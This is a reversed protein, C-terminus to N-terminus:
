LHRAVAECFETTSASGGQDPTLRRGEAYVREVATELRRAAEVFGLYELMLTASLITATPNIVNRGAIDPASGHASEFYAYTDGYCGSAALGLGGMVGAALDTLIDGYLNPLVVVDLAQPDAVLRRAFDDVIFTEFQVDLYSDAVRMAVQRFLGDSQPLMNHKTACTVKGPRGAEKRRRALEFAFRAVRETGAETIVKLAFRGPGMEAVPRRATRSMLDLPRLTELEGEVAVYLDELNERVIVFDIGRPEALPSRYGPLWRSPRVNAYTGKGWRLYFLAAFSRGSTAGFLTADSEDIARRAEDPFASGSRAIGEEGVPPRLWEIGLGLRDVLAVTPRVAEPAADEGEIVVVRKTAL